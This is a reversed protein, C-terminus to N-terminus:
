WGDDSDWSEGADDPDFWDPATTPLGSLEALSEDGMRFTRTNHGLVDAFPWERRADELTEFMDLHSRRSQGALVSSEPYVGHGYVAFGHFFTDAFPEITIADYEHDCM